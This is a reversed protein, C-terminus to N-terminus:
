LHLIRELSPFHKLVGMLVSNFLIMRKPNKCVIDIEHYDGSNAVNVVKITGTFEKNKDLPSNFKVDVKLWGM